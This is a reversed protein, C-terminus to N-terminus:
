KTVDISLKSAQPRWTAARKKAEAIQRPTLDREFLDTVKRAQELGQIAALLTWMYAEGNNERVGEGQFYMGGLTFQAMAYGQDAAKRFWKVAEGSDQRVGDGKDYMVGLRNQSKADGQAAETRIEDISSAALCPALPLALSAVLFLFVLLRNLIASIAIVLSFGILVTKSTSM